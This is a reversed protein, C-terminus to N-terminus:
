SPGKLQLVVRLLVFDMPKIPAFGVLLIARGEALDAQSMVDRGCRVVFVEDPATGELAGSRWLGTLFTTVSMRIQLWLPEDNPEFVAWQLGRYLSQEIFLTLRRVPVYKWQEDSSITRASWLVPFSRPISRIANVGAEALSRAAADDIAVELGRVGQLRAQVGAPASWVGRETDTRAVVGAVAGGPPSSRPKGGALPDAVILRPFYVAANSSRTARLTAALDEAAQSDRTPPDVLLISRRRDCYALAAQLVEADVCGPVCLLGISDVADFAVLSGTVERDDAVRVVWADLGGNEFFLRVAYGLELNATLGGFAREFDASSSVHVAEGLLGKAAGGIFGTTSTSVGEIPHARFGTEEIYVGPALYEPVKEGRSDSNDAVPAYVARPKCGLASSLSDLEGGM